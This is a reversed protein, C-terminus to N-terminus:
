SWGVKLLATCVGLLLPGTVGGVVAAPILRSKTRVGLLHLSAPLVSAAAIWTAILGLWSHNEWWVAARMEPTPLAGNELHNKAEALRKTEQGFIGVPGWASALVILVALVLGVQGLNRRPSPSAATERLVRTVFLVVLVFALLEFVAGLCGVFSYAVLPTGAVVLAWSALGLLCTLASLRPKGTSPTFRHPFFGFLGAWAALAAGPPEAEIAAPEDAWVPQQGQDGRPEM